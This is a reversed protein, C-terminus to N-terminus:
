NFDINGKDLNNKGNLSGQTIHTSSAHSTIEIGSSEYADFAPIVRSNNSVKRSVVDNIFPTIPKNNSRKRPPAAPPTLIPELDLKNHITENETPKTQNIGNTPKISSESAKNVNSVSASYEPAIELQNTQSPPENFTQNSNKPTSEKKTNKKLSEDVSKSPAPALKTAADIVLSTKRQAIVSTKPLRTSDIKRQPTEAGKRQSHEGNKNPSAVHKGISENRKVAVSKKKQSDANENSKRLSEKKEVVTKRENESNKKLNQNSANKTAILKNNGKSQPPPPPAHRAPKLVNQNKPSTGDLKDPDIKNFLERVIMNKTNGNTTRLAMTDNFQVDMRKSTQRESNSRKLTM